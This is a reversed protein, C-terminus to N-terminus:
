LQDSSRTQRRLATMSHGVSSLAGEGDDRPSRARAGFELRRASQGEGGKRGDPGVRDAAVLSTRHCGS